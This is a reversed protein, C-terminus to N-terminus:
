NAFAFFYTNLFCLFFFMVPFAMGRLFSLGVKIIIILYTVLFCFYGNTGEVLSVGNFAM